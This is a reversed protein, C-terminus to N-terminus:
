VLALSTSIMICAKKYAGDRYTGHSNPPFILSLLVGVKWKSNKM